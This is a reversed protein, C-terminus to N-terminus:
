SQRLYSAPARKKPRRMWYTPATRDFRRRLADRGRFRFFLAVPTFIAFFIVGVVLNSVCWGIPWTLLTLGLYIPKLSRPRVLGAAAALLGVALPVGVRWSELAAVVGERSDGSRLLALGVLLIAFGLSVFGFSRLHRDDPQWNIDMLAM